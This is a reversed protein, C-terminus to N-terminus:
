SGGGIFGGWRGGTSDADTHTTDGAAGDMRAGAAEPAVVDGGRACAGAAAGVLAALVAARIWVRM